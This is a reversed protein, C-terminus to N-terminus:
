ILIPLAFLITGLFFLATLIHVVPKNVKLFIFQQISRIAWFLSCSILFLAGYNTESLQLPFLFCITATLFLYYIIQINLIQMIARNAFNLRRLETRWRFLWWFAIHFIGFILNFAGSILILSVKDM